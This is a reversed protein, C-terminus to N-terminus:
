QKYTVYQGNPLQAFKFGKKAAQRAAVQVAYAKKVENVQLTKSAELVGNYYRGSEYQGTTNNVGSFDLYGNVLRVTFGMEELAEKLIAPNRNELVAQTKSMTFCPM